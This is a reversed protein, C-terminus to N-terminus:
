RLSRRPWMTVLRSGPKLAVYVEVIKGRLEDIV